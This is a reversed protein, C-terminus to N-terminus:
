AAMMEMLTCARCQNNSAPEGCRECSQQQDSKNHMGMLLPKLQLFQLVTNRKAGPIIQEIEKIHDRVSNRFSDTSCPCAGYHVPFQKIKSYSIVEQETVFYLPKVRQVFKTDTVVGTVPGIRALQEMDGKLLNMIVSQAEDDMNHGFAIKKIGMDRAHRNLLYRRLVGCITCSKLDAGKSNIISRLYCLSYGFEERFSIHHLKIGLLKTFLVANEVNEKSYCGIYANLTIAEANYGLKKLIYLLVTSDKGGSYAVAIRDSLSFMSFRSITDQVRQEILKCFSNETSSPQRKEPQQKSIICHM